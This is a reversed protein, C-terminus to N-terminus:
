STMHGCPSTASEYRTDNLLSSPQQLQGSTTEIFSGMEGFTSLPSFRLTPSVPALQDLFQMKGFESKLILKSSNTQCKASLIIM